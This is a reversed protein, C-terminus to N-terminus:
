LTCYLGYGTPSAHSTCSEWKALSTPDTTWFIRPCQPESHSSWSNRIVSILGLQQKRFTL